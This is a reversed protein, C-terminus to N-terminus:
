LVLVAWRRYLNFTHEGSTTLWGWTDATHVAQTSPGVSDSQGEEEASDESSNVVVASLSHLEELVSLLKESLICVPWRGCWDHRHLHSSKFYADSAHLTLVNIVTQLSISKQEWLAAGRQLHKEPLLLTKCLLQTLEQTSARWVERLVLPRSCIRTMPPWWFFHLCFCCKEYSDKAKFLKVLLLNKDKETEKLHTKKVERKTHRGEKMEEQKRAAEREFQRLTMVALCLVSLSWFSRLSTTIYKTFLKSRILECVANHFHSWCGINLQQPSLYWPALGVVQKLTSERPQISKFRWREWGRPVATRSRLCERRCPQLPFVFM